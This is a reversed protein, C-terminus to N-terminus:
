VSRSIVLDTGLFMWDTISPMRIERKQVFALTTLKLVVSKVLKSNTSKMSTKGAHLGRSSNVVLNKNVWLYANALLSTIYSKMSLQTELISSGTVVIFGICRNGLHVKSNSKSQTLIAELSVRKLLKVWIVLRKFVLYSM